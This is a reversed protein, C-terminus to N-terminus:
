IEIIKQNTRSKKRNDLLYSEFDDLDRDDLDQAIGFHALPNKEVSKLLNEIVDSFSESGKKLKSLKEYLEEKIAILKSAM